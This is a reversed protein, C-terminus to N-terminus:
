KRDGPCLLFGLIDETPPADKSTNHTNVDVILALLTPGSLRLLWYNEWSGMELTSEYRVPVSKVISLLM